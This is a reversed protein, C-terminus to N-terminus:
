SRYLAKLARQVPLPLVIRAIARAAPLPAAHLRLGRQLLGLARRRDAPGIETAAQLLSEGRRRQLVAAKATALAADQAAIREVIRLTELPMEGSRTRHSMQLDSRRYRLLAEPVYAFRAGRALRFFFDYDSSFRLSEDCSGVRDLCERRFMVTPPHVFNGWLLAEYICGTRVALRAGDPLVVSDVDPYLRDVGGLRRVALYYTMLHSAEFDRAEDIFASFDSSVLDIQPLARLVAAQHLLREPHCIDDADFWAIFRGQAAQMGANRASALGGNAKRVIRLRGGAGAALRALLAPTEDTSGDDVVIVEVASYTQQLCSQVAVELTPAANYAAILISVLPLDSSTTM